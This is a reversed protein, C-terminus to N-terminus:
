GAAASLWDAVLDPLDGAVLGVARGLGAARGHVHAALVAAEPGAVGQALFAGIVGSLVDGTGATALRPSGSATFFVRGDPAAVLTTSGKLLVVAGSSTALARVAGLRDDGPPGGTLRAYEGEHPTIVTAAPRRAAVHRLREVSGLANIGDADVVAPVEVHELMAVLASTVSDARGLGPGTVLARCRKTAEVAPGDWGAAPLEVGVTEGSPLSSLPAGPVGLRVYGAGARMAARSVMTPAGMMGPSGAVVMVASRWKHTERPRPPLWRTEWDTVLWATAEAEVGAGLGIDAVVVLGALEPGRGLLLGPKYAQFTVTAVAPLAGGAVVGTDGALGSPIDVALVPAGGPDPPQYSGRFGTGYAADIVLDSLPLRSGGALSAADLMAVRVGRRALVQAAARGDAGNNGKGAVVVVRRGYAGGLLDLAVRAVARGARGILVDVPEAAGKDVAAMQAATVVPIM